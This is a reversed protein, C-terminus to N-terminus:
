RIFYLNKIRIEIDTVKADAWIGIKLPNDRSIQGPEEISILEGKVPIPKREGNIYIGAQNVVTVNNGSPSTVTSSEPKRTYALIDVILRSYSYKRDCWYEAWDKINITETSNYTWITQLAYDNGNLAEQVKGNQVLRITGKYLSIREGNTVTFIEEVKKIGGSGVRVVDINEM